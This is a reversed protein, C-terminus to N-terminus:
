SAAYGASWQLHSVVFFYRCLISSDFIGLFCYKVLCEYVDSEAGTECRLLTRQVERAEARTRM